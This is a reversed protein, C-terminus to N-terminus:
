CLRWVVGTKVGHWITRTAHLETIVMSSLFPDLALSATVPEVHSTLSKVFIIGVIFKCTYATFSMVFTKKSKTTLTNNNNNHTYFVDRCVRSTLICHSDCLM